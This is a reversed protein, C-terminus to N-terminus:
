DYSVLKLSTAEPILLVNSGAAQSIEDAIRAVGEEDLTPVFAEPDSWRAEHISYGLAEEITGTLTSGIVTTLITVRKQIPRPESPTNDSEFAQDARYIAWHYPLFLAATLTTGVVPTLDRLTEM